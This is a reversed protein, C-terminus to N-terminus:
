ESEQESETDNEEQLNSDEVKKRVDYQADNTTDSEGKVPGTNNEMESDEIDHTPIQDDKAQAGTKDEMESDEIEDVVSQNLPKTRDEM